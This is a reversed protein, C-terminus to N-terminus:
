ELDLPDFDKVIYILKHQGLLRKSYYWQPLPLDRYDYDETGRKGWQVYVSEEGYLIAVEKFCLGSRTLVPRTSRLRRLNSLRGCSDFVKRKDVFCGDATYFNIVPVIGRPEPTEPRVGPAYDLLGPNSKRPDADMPPEDPDYQTYPISRKAPKSAKVINPDMGLDALGAIARPTHRLGSEDLPHPSPAESFGGAYSSTCAETVAGKGHVANLITAKADQTFECDSPTSPSYSPSNTGSCAEDHDIGVNHGDVPEAPKLPTAM